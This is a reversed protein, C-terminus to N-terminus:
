LSSLSHLGVIIQSSPVHNLAEDLSVLCPNTKSHVKVPCRMFVSAYSYELRKEMFPLGGIVVAAFLMMVTM